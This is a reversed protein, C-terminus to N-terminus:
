GNLTTTMVEQHCKVSPALLKWVGGAQRQTLGVIANADDLTGTGLIEVGQTFFHHPTGVLAASEVGPLWRKSPVCAPFDKRGVIMKNNMTGYVHIRPVTFMHEYYWSSINMTGYVYFVYYAPLKKRTTGGSKYIIYPPFTLVM